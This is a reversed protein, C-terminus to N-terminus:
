ARGPQQGGFRAVITRRNGFWEASQAPSPLQASPGACRVGGTGSVPTSPSRGCFRARVALASRCSSFSRAASRCCPAMVGSSYPPGFLRSRSTFQPLPPGSRASPPAKFESLRIPTKCPPGQKNALPVAHLMCSHTSNLATRFLRLPPLSALFPFFPSAVVPCHLGLISVVLKSFPLQPPPAGEISSPLVPPQAPSGLFKRCRGVVRKGRSLMSPALVRM